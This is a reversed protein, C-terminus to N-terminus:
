HITVQLHLFKNSPTLQLQRMAYPIYICNGNPSAGIRTWRCTKVHDEQGNLMVLCSVTIPRLSRPMDELGLKGVSRQYVARWHRKQCSSRSPRSLTQHLIRPADADLLYIAEFDGQGRIEGRRRLTETDVGRIAYM